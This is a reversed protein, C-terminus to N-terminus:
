PLTGSMLEAGGGLTQADLIGLGSRLVGFGAIWAWLELGIIGFVPIWEWSKLDLIGFRPIWVRSILNLLGFGAHCMKTMKSAWSQPWRFSWSQPATNTKVNRAMKPRTSWNEKPLGM